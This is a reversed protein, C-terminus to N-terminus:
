RIRYYFPIIDPLVEAKFGFDNIISILSPPHVQGTSSKVRLIRDCDQLDFNAKYYSHLQHIRDVIMNAQARDNVNTKFVEIREM